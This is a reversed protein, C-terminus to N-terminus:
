KETLDPPPPTRKDNPSLICILTGTKQKEDIKNLHLNFNIYPKLMVQYQLIDKLHLNTHM